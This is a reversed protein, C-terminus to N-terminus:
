TIMWIKILLTCNILSKIIKIRPSLKRFFRVNIEKRSSPRELKFSTSGTQRERASFLASWNSSTLELWTVTLSEAKWNMQRARPRLQVSWDSRIHPQVNQKSSSSVNLARESATWDDLNLSSAREPHRMLIGNWPWRLDVSEEAKSPGTTSSSRTAKIDLSTELPPKSSSLSLIEESQSAKRFSSLTRRSSLPFSVRRPACKTQKVVPNWRSFSNFRATRGSSVPEKDLETATASGSRSLAENAKKWDNAWCQAWSRVRTSWLQRNLQDFGSLTRM